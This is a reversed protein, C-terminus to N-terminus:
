IRRSGAGKSTAPEPNHWSSTGMSNYGNQVNAAAANCIAAKSRRDRYRDESIQLFSFAPCVTQGFLTSWFSQSDKLVDKFAIASQSEIFM